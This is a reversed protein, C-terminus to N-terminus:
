GLKAGLSKKLAIAIQYALFPPVANGVQVYQSTRPGCFYYDDPFTQLRAAERVTLSRAQVPDPHIFYHGDKSIHSTITSSPRDAMQVKFRDLHTKTALSSGNLKINQHQPKLKKLNGDWEGLTPSRRLERAAIACYLYRLIDSKLHGRTEHLTWCKPHGDSLFDELENDLMPKTELVMENSSRALPENISKLVKLTEELAGVFKSGDFFPAADNVIMDRWEDFGDASKSLGSRLRPLNGITDWVSPAPREELMIPTVEIDSRIGLIFVRERSQPIGYNKANIVFDSPRPNEQDFKFLEGTASLPMLSYEAPDLREGRDDTTFGLRKLTEVPRNLGEIIDKFVSGREADDAKKASLLGKVNEMLFFLPKHYAVTELYNLYLAHREDKYFDAVRASRERRSGKSGLRRSRGALSYAQCPPGGILGFDRNGVQERLREHLSRNKPESGLRYHMTAKDAIATASPHLQYLSELSLKKQLYKNYDSQVKSNNGLRAFHRLKLTESFIPNAECSLVNDFGAKFFGEGLGGAGAFLDVVAIKM